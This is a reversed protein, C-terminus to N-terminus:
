LRESEASTPSCHARLRRERAPWTAREPIMYRTQREVLTAIQINGSGFVLDGEWHGPVARDEVSAPRESISVADVIQGHGVTKQTYHRSRRMGRTRRLHELLEKKLAGRAQIFLSRYITENHCCVNM